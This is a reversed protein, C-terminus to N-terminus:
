SSDRHSRRSLLSARARHDEVLLGGVATEYSGAPTFPVRLEPPSASPERRPSAARPQGPKGLLFVSATILIGAACAIAAAYAPVRGTLWTAADRRPADRLAARVRTRLDERPIAAAGRIAERLELLRAERLRCNECEALHVNLKTEAVPDLAGFVLQEIATIDEVCGKM